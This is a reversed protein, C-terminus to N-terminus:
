QGPNPALNQEIKTVSIETNNQNMIVMGDPIHTIQPKLKVTQGPEMDHPVVTVRLQDLYHQDNSLAQPVQLVLYLETPSIEYQGTNDDAIEIPYNRNITKLGSTVTYRVRVTQPNASVFSPTVLPITKAESTGKEKPDLRIVLPLETMKSIIEEPGRLIVTGPQVNEQDVTLAKGLLPSDFVLKVRVSREVVNDVMLELEPPNIDVIDFARFAPGLVEMSIPVTNSGKKIGALNVTHVVNDRPISRILKEPGKLRVTIKTLLGKTVVLNQPIKMYDVSLDIQAEIRDRVSVMYWMAIAVIISITISKANEWREERIKEKDKFSDSM